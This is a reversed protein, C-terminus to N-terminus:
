FAGIFMCYKCTKTQVHYSDFTCLWEAFPGCIGLCWVFFNLPVSMRHILNQVERVTLAQDEAAVM